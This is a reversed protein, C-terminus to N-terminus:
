ALSYMAQFLLKLRAPKQTSNVTQTPQLSIGHTMSAPFTKTSASYTVRAKLFKETTRRISSQFLSQQQTLSSASTQTKSTQAILLRQKPLQQM